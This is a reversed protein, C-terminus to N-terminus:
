NSINVQPNKYKLLSGIEVGDIQNHTSGSTSIIAWFGTDELYMDYWFM